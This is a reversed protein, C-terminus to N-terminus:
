RAGSVSFAMHVGAGTETSAFRPSVAGSSM